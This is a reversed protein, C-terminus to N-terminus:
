KLCRLRTRLHWGRRRCSEYQDNLDKYGQFSQMLDWQKILAKVPHEIRDTEHHGM